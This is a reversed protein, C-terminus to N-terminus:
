AFTKIDTIEYHTYKFTVTSIIPETEITSSDFQIGGLSIPFLNFFTVALKPRSANSLTVLEAVSKQQEYDLQYGKENHKSLGIMWDHISLWNRMNEDVIFDVTLDEYDYVTGPSELVVGVRTTLEATSLTLTPISARQCFYTVLPLREISFRFANNSLYTDTEPQKNYVSQYQKDFAIENEATYGPM